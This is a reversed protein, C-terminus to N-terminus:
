LNWTAFIAMNSLLYMKWPGDNKTDANFKPSRFIRTPFGNKPIFGMTLIRLFVCESIHYRSGKSPAGKKKIPIEALRKPPKVKVLLPTLQPLLDLWFFGGKM